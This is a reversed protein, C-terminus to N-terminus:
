RKLDTGRVRLMQSAGQGNNNRNLGQFTMRNRVPVKEGDFGKSMCENKLEWIALGLIPTSPSFSRMEASIVLDPATEGLSGTRGTTLGAARLSFFGSGGAEFM